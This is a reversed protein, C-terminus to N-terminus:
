IVTLIFVRTRFFEQIGIERNFALHFERTFGENSIIM